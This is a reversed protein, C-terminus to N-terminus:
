NELKQSLNRINWTKEIDLVYELDKWIMKPKPFLYNKSHNTLSGSEGNKEFMWTTLSKFDSNGPFTWLIAKLMHKFSMESEFSFYYTSWIPMITGKIGSASNLLPTHMELSNVLFWHAKKPSIKKNVSNLM